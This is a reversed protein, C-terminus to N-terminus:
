LAEEDVQEPALTVAMFLEDILNAQEETLGEAFANVYRDFDKPSSRPAPLLASNACSSIKPQSSRQRGVLMRKKMLRVSRCLPASTIAKSRQRRRPPTILSAVPLERTLMQLFAAPNATACM